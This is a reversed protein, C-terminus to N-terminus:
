RNLLRNLPNVGEFFSGPDNIVNSTKEIQEQITNYKDVANNIYPRSLYYAGITIGIIIIWYIFKWVMTRRLYLQIKRIKKANKETLALNEKLLKNNEEILNQLDNDM